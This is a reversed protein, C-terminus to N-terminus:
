YMDIIKSNIIFLLSRYISFNYRKLLVHFDIYLTIM